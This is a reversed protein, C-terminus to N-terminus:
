EKNRVYVATLIGKSQVRLGLDSTTIQDGSVRFWQEGGRVRTYTVFTGAAQTCFGHLKYFTSSSGPVAYIGADFELPLEAGCDPSRTFQLTLLPPLTIQQKEVSSAAIEPKRGGFFFTPAHFGLASNLLSILPSNPHTLHLPLMICTEEGRIFEIRHGFRTRRLLTWIEEQINVFDGEFSIDADTIAM